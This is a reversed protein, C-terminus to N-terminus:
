RSLTGPVVQDAIYTALTRCHEETGSGLRRNTARRRHQLPQIWDESRESWFISSRGSPWRSGSAVVANMRHRLEGQGALSELSEPYHERGGVDPVRKLRSAWIGTLNAALVPPYSQVDARLRITVCWM